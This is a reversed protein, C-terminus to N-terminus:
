IRGIEKVQDVFRPPMLNEIFDFSTKFFGEDSIKEKLTIFSHGMKFAEESNFLTRAEEFIENEEEYIHEELAKQLGVATEKWDMVELGERVKLERLLLEAKFHEKYSQMVKSTDSRLARISNYFVAEEARSHPIFEKEIQDVLITRYDDETDLAVLEKILNQIQVHDNKLAQYIDM